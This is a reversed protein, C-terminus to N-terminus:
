HKVIVWRVLRNMILIGDWPVGFNHIKGPMTIRDVGRYTVKKAFRKKKEYDLISANIAQIKRTILPIVENINEIEKIFITRGQIPDELNIEKSIM